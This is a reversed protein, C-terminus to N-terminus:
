QLTLCRGKSKKDYVDQTMSIAGTLRVPTKMDPAVSTYEVVYQKFKIVFPEGLLSKLGEVDRVEVIKPNLAYGRESTGPKDISDTKQEPEPVVNTSANDDSDSSCATLTTCLSYTLIAALMWMFHKKM